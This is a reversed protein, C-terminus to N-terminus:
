LEDRGQRAVPAAPDVAERMLRCFAVDREYQQANGFGHRGILVGVARCRGIAHELARVWPMGPALNGRDFAKLGVQGLASVIDAAHSHDARAYSVFVDYSDDAVVMGADVGACRGDM